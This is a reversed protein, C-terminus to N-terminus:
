LLLLTATPTAIQAIKAATKARAAPNSRMGISWFTGEYAIFETKMKRKSLDRAIATTKIKGARMMPGSSLPTNGFRSEDSPM